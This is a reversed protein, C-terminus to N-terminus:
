VVLESAARSCELPPRVGEVNTGCLHGTKLWAAAMGSQETMETQLWQGRFAEIWATHDIEIVPRGGDVKPM